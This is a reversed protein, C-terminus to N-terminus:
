TVKESSASPASESYPPSTPQTTGKKDPTEMFYYFYTAIPALIVHGLVWWVREDTPQHKVAHVLTQFWLITGRVACAFMVWFLIQFRTPEAATIEDPMKWVLSLVWAIAFIVLSIAVTPDRKM